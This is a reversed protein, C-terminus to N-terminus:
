RTTPRAASGSSSTATWAPTSRRGLRRDQPVPRRQHRGLLLLHVARRGAGAAEPGPPQHGQLRPRGPRCPRGHARAQAPRARHRRFHARRSSGACRRMSMPMSSIPAHARRLRQAGRERPGARAGARLLRDLDCPGGGGPWRRWPSAAVTYPPLEGHRRQRRLRRALHRGDIRGRRRELPGARMDREVAEVGRACSIM